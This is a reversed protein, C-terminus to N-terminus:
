SYENLEFINQKNFIDNFNSINKIFDSISYFTLFKYIIIYM